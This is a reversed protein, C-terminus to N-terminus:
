VFIRSKNSKIAIKKIKKAPYRVFHGDKNNKILIFGFRRYFIYLRKLDSGYINAAYLRIQVNHKDAFRAINKIVKTGYGQNRYKRRIKIIDLYIHPCETDDTNYTLKLQEIKGAYMVNRLYSNYKKLVKQDLTEM